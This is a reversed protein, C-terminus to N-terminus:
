SPAIFEGSKMCRHNRLMDKSMAYVKEGHRVLLAFPGSPSFPGSSEKPVSGGQAQALEHAPNASERRVLCAGHSLNALVTVVLILRGCKLVGHFM